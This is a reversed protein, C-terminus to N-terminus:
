LKAVHDEGFDTGQTLASVATETSLPATAPRSAGSGQAPGLRGFPFDHGGDVVLEDDRRNQRM